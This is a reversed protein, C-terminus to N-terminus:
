DGDGRGAVYGTLDPGVALDCRHAARHAGLRHEISGLQGRVPNKVHLLPTDIEYRKGAALEVRRKTAPCQDAIGRPQFGTGGHETTAPCDIIDVEILNEP